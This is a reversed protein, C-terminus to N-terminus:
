WVPLSTGVSSRLYIARISQSTVRTGKHCGTSLHCQNQKHVRFSGHRARQTGLLRNWVKCLSFRGAGRQVPFHQKDHTNMDAAKESRPRGAGCILFSLRQQPFQTPPLVAGRTRRSGFPLSKARAPPSLGEGGGPKAERM